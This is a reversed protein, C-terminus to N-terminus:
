ITSDSHRETKQQLKTSSSFFIAFRVNTKGASLSFEGLYGRCFRQINLIRSRLVSYRLTLMRTHFQTQLRTFGKCMIQYRKWDHYSKCYRQILLVSQRMSLYQRRTIWQRISNQLILIKKAMVQERTQELFVDHADQFVFLFMKRRQVFRNESTSFRVKLFVKSKGIQFDENILVTKCIKEAALRCDGECHSPGIAAALLRYRDVFDRFLHRIPYGKRRISITEMMGSYRLQRCVLARDFNQFAFSFNTEISKRKAEKREASQIRETKHLPHLVASLGFSDGDVLGVIEQITNGVVAGTQANRNRNSIRQSFSEASIQKENGSAIEDFRSQFHRSKERSFRFSVFIM